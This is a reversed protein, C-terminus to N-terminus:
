KKIKGIVRGCIFFSDYEEIGIPKYVSNLSVLRNGQWMKLYGEGNLYFVGVQGPEVIINTRIFVVDGDLYMPEMSDGRVRLAFDAGNPADAFDEYEYDHGDALWAGTGASVPTNFLPLQTLIKKAKEQFKSDPLEGFDYLAGLPANLVKGLAALIEYTPNKNEGSELKTVYSYSVESLKALEAQTLGSKIRLEKLRENFKM